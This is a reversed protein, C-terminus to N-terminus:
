FSFGVLFAAQNVNSPALSGVGRGPKEDDGWRTYRLEPAIRLKTIKFEVGGGITFGAQSVYSDFNGGLTRFNPGAEVYPKILPVPLRYKGLIPFEWSSYNNSSRFVAPRPAIRNETAFNLPHYLGGAEVSLGLPLHLEIMPGVLYLKSDSFTRQLVDVGIMSHDAFADTFPVGVKVGISLHQGFSLSALCVLLHLVRTFYRM